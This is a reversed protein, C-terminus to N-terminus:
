WRFLIWHPVQLNDAEHRRTELAGDGDMDILYYSPGSAPTIKVKFLRGNIRYEEATYNAREVITVEPEIQEQQPPPPADQPASPATPEPIPPIPAPALQAAVLGSFLVSSALLTARTMPVFVRATRSM